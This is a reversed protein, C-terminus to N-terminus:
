QTDQLKELFKTPTAALKRTSYHMFVIGTKGRAIEKGSAKNTLVYIMDFGYKNYDEVAIKIEIHDGYFSESKYVIASDTVIMGVDGDIGLENEYGLYNLFQLRGEQMITLVADNGLHGGYNIDAIRVNYNCTYIFAEPLDIKIRAM